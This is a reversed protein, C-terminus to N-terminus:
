YPQKPLEGPRWGPKYAGASRDWIEESSLAGRLRRVISKMEGKAAVTPLGTERDLAWRDPEVWCVAEFDDETTSVTLETVIRAYLYPHHGCLIRDGELIARYPNRSPKAAYMVLEAVEATAIAYLWEISQGVRHRGWQRPFVAAIKDAVAASASAYDWTVLWASKAQVVNTGLSDNWGDSPWGENAM